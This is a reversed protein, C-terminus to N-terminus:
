VHTVANIDRKNYFFFGAATLAAAVATLLVLAVPNVEDMPLQPVFGMPTTYVLWEPFIALRGIFVVLFTYAYYAWIIGTAKPAVGILLIAIASMTWMAPVYVIASEFLFALTLDGPNPIVGQAISHLGVALVIQMLLSAAFSIAAFGALYKFRCTPTALILETRGAREESKARLVFLLPAALTLLVMINNVMSAFLQTLNFGAANVVANLVTVLEETTMGEAAEFDIGAPTLLLNRYFDNTAVFEDVNGLITAYSAGLAFVGILTLILATRTLRFSLGTATSLLASAEARGPRAPIIGQDIDRTASLRYAIAAVAASAGLLVALPWWLNSAYPAAHVALGLPTLLSLVAMDPNMDGAARIFYFLILAIFSYSVAGRSNSSLQCFLATLAAFALGVAGHILGWLMSPAFGMSYDGAAFMLLGMILSMAGNVVIATLFAASLNALRGVPLSRVVEYRGQEEDARTHRTILFINMIGITLVSFLFILNTYLAGFGEYITAFAPGIMAIMAPLEMMSALEVRADVDIALMMGPVLGVVVVNFIIIWALAIFRERRLMFKTLLFTNSFNSNRWDERKYKDM